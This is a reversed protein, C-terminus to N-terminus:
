FGALFSHRKHTWVDFFNLMMSAVSDCSVARYGGEPCNMSTVILALSVLMDKLKANDVIFSIAQPILKSVRTRVGQAPQSVSQGREGGYATLVEQSVKSEEVLVVSAVMLSSAISAKM